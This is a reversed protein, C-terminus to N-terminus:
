EIKISYNDGRTSIVLNKNDYNKISKLIDVFIINSLNNNTKSSTVSYYEKDNITYSIKLIKDFFKKPNDGVSNYISSNKDINLEYMIRIVNKIVINM